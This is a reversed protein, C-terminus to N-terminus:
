PRHPGSAGPPTGARRPRKPEHGVRRRTPCALLCIEGRLWSPVFSPWQVPLPGIRARPPGPAPAKAPRPPAESRAKTAEHHFKSATGRVASAPPYRHRSCPQRCPPSGRKARPRAEHPRHARGATRPQRCLLFSKVCIFAFPRLARLHPPQGATRMKRSRRALGRPPRRLGAVWTKRGHCGSFVHTAPRRRGHCPRSRRRDRLILVAPPPRFARAHGLMSRRTNRAASSRCGWDWKGRKRGNANMQTFDKKRHQLCPVPEAPAASGKVTYSTKGDCRAQRRWPALSGSPQCAPQPAVPPGYVADTRRVKVWGTRVIGSKVLSALTSREPGGCRIVVPSGPHVREVGGRPVADFANCQRGRASGASRM